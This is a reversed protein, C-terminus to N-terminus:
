DGNGDDDQDDDGDHGHGEHHGNGKINPLSVKVIQGSGPPGGFGMNSVYLNGDPGLTMGTPFTLGTVVTEKKGGKSVRVIDGTAPTPFPNGTTMELVYFQGRHDIVLGVITSFGTAWKKV